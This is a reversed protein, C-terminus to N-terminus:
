EEAVVFPTTNAFIPPIALLAADDDNHCLHCPYNSGSIVIL